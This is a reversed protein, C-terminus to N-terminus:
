NAILKYSKGRETNFDILFTDKLSLEVNSENETMVLSPLNPEPYFSNTNNGQAIQLTANKSQLPTHTRLRCNGGLTSLITVNKLEGNEWEINLIFGGRARLGKVSGTHWNDPLAPLVFIEETHSQLLMETIGATGGFNGDIQFPPHADFMNSYTGGGKMSVDTADVHKLANKLMKYAHNGDELRAWFNIKWAMAWGTGGDGRLELTRKTAKAYDPNVRPLVEKGPYLGFLHSIHRHHPDVDDFDKHWEQLQGKSGEHPPYLKELKNKLDSRFFDDINLLESARITNVFLERILSMDMTTAKAIVGVQEKGNRDIYKFNNEPSTSPNTVLYGSKTDEQLWQLMFEAAGKMLPYAKEELYKLDGNFAYHEWLHQCFWVGAMPWSSWRPSGSPDQDYGGTPSTQAWADSNHHALWGNDIGYNIKATKAGEKSLREVFSLLPEFCEQLGTTEVSWYNMETNINTTYNSGWPPQVHRNWIGQLNSPLSGARSSAITLYRGYQFYLEILGNDSDDNQFASLRKNVPLEDKGEGLDLAVRDFLNKYDEKHRELLKKYGLSQAKELIEVAKKGASTLDVSSQEFSDQNYSTVAAVIITASKAGTLSLISDNTEINGGQPVVLMQVEFNLGPGGKEDSYLIQNPDNNRHAIYYPAKGKLILKNGEVSTKYRLDSNLGLDFSVADKTDAELQIVLVRDPFSIFSSRSYQVDNIKYTVNATADSINLDRYFDVVDNGEGRMKLLLNALPLYRATYPGQSNNKWLSEALKYDENDIAERIKPLAAPGLPNNREESPGSWLTEENLQYVENLPNGFVMAGLSGNGLPLAEEWIRAPADYWLMLDQSTQKDSNCFSFGILLFVLSIHQLIKKM